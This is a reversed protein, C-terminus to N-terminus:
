DSCCRSHHNNIGNRTGNLRAATFKKTAAHNPKTIQPPQHSLPLLTSSANSTTGGAAADAGGIVLSCAMADTAVVTAITTAHIINVKPGSRHLIMSRHPPSM